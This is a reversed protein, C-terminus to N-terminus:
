ALGVDLGLLLEEAIGSELVDGDQPEDLVRQVGLAVVGDALLEEAVDQVLVEAGVFDLALELGSQVPSAVGLEEIVVGLASAQEMAFFGIGVGHPGRTLDSPARRNAVWGCEPYPVTTAAAPAFRTPASRSRLRRRLAKSRRRPAPELACRTRGM